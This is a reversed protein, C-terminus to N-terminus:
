LEADFKIYNGNADYAQIVVAYGSVFGTGVGRFRGGKNNFSFSNLASYGKTGNSLVQFNGLSIDVSASPSARM